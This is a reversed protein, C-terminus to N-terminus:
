PQPHSLRFRVEGDHNEILNLAYGAQEAQKGAQYLGIGLGKESSIRKKFLTDAVHSPMASGSDFVEISLANGVNIEVQISIDPELKSKDIANHLLNDVVSTVVVEDVLIDPVPGPLFEVRTQAYRLQADQWWDALRTMKQDPKQPAQLKALTMALRQNLQPLQRRILSALRDNDSEPTHEAATCLGGMSQVINKIDHTLRAGTEYIAQMYANQTMAEERRKAQYLEGLLQSLLKVHVTLTPTIAQHFYITFRLGQANAEVLHLSASGLKGEGDQCQWVVGRAWPLKFVELMSQQVFLEARSQQEAIDTLQKILDQLPLDLNMLYRSVIQGLGAFKKHPNWLWSVVILAIASAFLVNTLVEGYHSGSSAEIAFSGLIAITALLMLFVSYFFDLLPPLTSQQNEEHRFWFAILIIALPPLPLVYTVLLSIGTLDLPKSLLNPVVWMLLLAILYGTAILYNLKAGQTKTAFARGGLLGFLIAIWFAVLWWNTFVTLLLAGTVFLVTASTSLNRKTQWIPQWFLFFVYHLLLLFRSNFSNPTFLVSAHLCLLMLGLSMQGILHIISAPIRNTQIM